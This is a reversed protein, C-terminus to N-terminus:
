RSWSLHPLHINLQWNESLMRTPRDFLGLSLSVKGKERFSKAVVIEVLQVFSVMTADAAHSGVGEFLPENGDAGFLWRKVTGTTTKALHAAEVITYLPSTQWVDNLTM